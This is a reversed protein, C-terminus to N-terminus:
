LTINAHNLLCPTFIFGYIINIILSIVLFLIFRSGIYIIKRNKMYHNLRNVFIMFLPLVFGFFLFIGLGYGSKVVFVNLECEAAKSIVLSPTQFYGTLLHAFCLLSIWHLNYKNLAKVDLKDNM